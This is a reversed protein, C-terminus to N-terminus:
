NLVRVSRSAIGNDKEFTALVDGSLAADGVVHNTKKTDRSKVAMEVLAPLASPHVGDTAVGCHKLAAIYIEAASDAAISVEGILPRVAKEAARIDKLTQFMEAKVETKATTIAADQAKKVEEEKAKKQEPTETDDEAVEEENDEANSTDEEKVDSAGTKPFMDCIANADDESMGKQVMADIASKRWEGGDEGPAAVAAADEEVAAEPGAVGAADMEPAESTAQGEVMDLLRMMVADPGIGEKKVPEPLLPEAADRAMKIIAEKFGKKEMAKRNFDKLGTTLATTLKLEQDLAIKPMIFATLAARVMVATRSLPKTKMQKEQKPKLAEDGVVVDPGARGKSVLAVHNGRINTMRGDYPQGQYEGPEMVPTYGYGCSLEKQLGSQIAAIGEKSWITLSNDLYPPNFAAETGTTGVIEDPKHDDATVPTHRILIQINNFTSAAKELENPDRFLQYIREPDLGLAECGPIEKGYYPNVCAKSIHALAVKMRGVDDFDRVTSWDFAISDSAQSVNLGALTEAVGPHTMEPPSGPEVWQFASHEGDSLDPVFEAPCKHLFTVFNFGNPTNVNSIEEGVEVAQYGTEEFCERAAADEPGEGDEAKGGPLGWHGGYNKEHDARKLLLVRGTPALLVLGGGLKQGGPGDQHEKEVKEESFFKDILSRLQDMEEPLMDKGLALTIKGNGTSIDKVSSFKEAIQKVIANM